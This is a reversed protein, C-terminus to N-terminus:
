ITLMRHRGLISQSVQFGYSRLPLFTHVNQEQIVPEGNLGIPFALVIESSLVHPRKEEDRYTEVTRKVVLYGCSDGNSNLYTLGDVGEIRRFQRSVGDISVVLHRLRRLFLLLTQEIEQLKGSLDEVDIRQSIHLRFTTLDRAADRPRQIWIPAIMGLDQSKDFKFTYIGSLVEVVDAVTFVSKFGACHSM